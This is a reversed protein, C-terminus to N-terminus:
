TTFLTGTEKMLAGAEALSKAGAEADNCGELINTRINPLEIHLDKIGDAIDQLATAINDIDNAMKTINAAVARFPHKSSLSAGTLFKVKGVVPFDVTKHQFDIDPIKIDDLKNAVIRLAIGVPAVLNRTSRTGAEISGMSRDVRGRAKLLDAVGRLKGAAADIKQSTAIEKDGISILNKGVARPDFPM